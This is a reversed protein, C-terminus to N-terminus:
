SEMLIKKPPNLESAGIIILFLSVAFFILLMSKNYLYSQPYYLRWDVKTLYPIDYMSYFHYKIILPNDSVKEITFNSNYANSSQVILNEGWYKYYQISSYQGATLQSTGDYVIYPFNTKPPNIFPYSISLACIIIVATIIALWGQSLHICTLLKDLWNVIVFSLVLSPLILLVCWTSIPMILLFIMLVLFIVFLFLSLLTKLEAKEM